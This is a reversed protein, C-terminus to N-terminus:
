EAFGAAVLIRGADLDVERVCDAVMPLAQGDELELVDNAPYGAVDKV